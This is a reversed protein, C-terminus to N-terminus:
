FGRLVQRRVLNLAATSSFLKNLRRDTSLQLRVAREGHADAYALWVLGVPKEPTGGGPGAIGTVGVGVDAGLRQRVGEAMQLAVAESVAGHVALEDPNVGLLGVKVSNCYAVVGGKYYSSSGPVDTLRDGVLGGTCSEATALTLRREALLRGVAAELTDEAEGFVLDGLRERVYAEFAGLRVEARARDPGTATLRLRVTGTGPLFALRLRAGDAEPRLWDALEPMREAQHTEGAGVTLLTKQVLAAGGGLAGIRGLPGAELIAKVEHPVGPLLVVTRPAGEWEGDFWLGPATGLPNRLREFGEPVDAMVRGAPPMPVGRAAYKAEIEALAEPDHVLPVGLVGAVVAKTVDDHTPGLGGTVVLLDDHGLADRVAARLVDDDDGVTTAHRVSVGIATLREGLWSANTNAVQGILLEDGVTLLTATM